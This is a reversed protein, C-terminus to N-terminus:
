VDWGSAAPQQAGPTGPAAGNLAQTSANADFTGAKLTKGIDIAAQALGLDGNKIAAAGLAVVDNTLTSPDAGSKIDALLKQYADSESPLLGLDQNAVGNNMLAVESALQNYSGDALSNVITNAAASLGTNGVKDALTKVQAADTKLTQTDAGKEVDDELKLYAAGLDDPQSFPGQPLNKAGPTGPVAATLASLYIDAGSGNGAANGINRAVYSLNADSNNQAAIALQAADNVITAKDAGSQIDAALKQYAAADPPTAAPASSSPTSSSPTSPNADMLATLSKTQDYSGDSLSIGINDATLVLDNRGAPGALTAVRDADSKITQPDAGNTLDVELQLYARELQPDAQPLSTDGALPDFVNTPGYGFNAGAYADRLRTLATNVGGNFSSGTPDSGVLLAMKELTENHSRAAAVALQQADQQIRSTGAGAQLDDVLKNYLTSEVDGTKQPPGDVVVTGVRPGGGGPPPYLPPPTLVSSAANRIDLLAESANDSGSAATAVLDAANAALDETGGYEEGALQAADAVSRVGEVVQAATGRARFLSDAVHSVAGAAGEGGAKLADVLADVTDALQAATAGRANSVMRTTTAVLDAFGGGDANSIQAIGEMAGQLDNASGHVRAVNQIMTVVANAGVVGGSLAADSVAHAANIAASMATYPNGGSAEAAAKGADSLAQVAARAATAAATRSQGQPTANSRAANTAASATFRAANAAAGASGAPANAIISAAEATAQAAAAGGARTAALVAQAAAAAAAPNGGPAHAVAGAADAAYGAAAAAETASGGANVIALAAQATAEAAAVGGARTALLVDGAASAAKAPNGGPANAVATAADAASQAAAAAGTAGGTAAAAFAAQAAFTAADDGGARAADAVAQAAAVGGSRAASSAALAADAAATAASAGVKVAVAAANAGAQTVATYAAAGAAGVGVGAGAEAATAAVAQAADLGATAVIRAAATAADVGGLAAAAEVLSAAAVAAADAAEAGLGAAARAAARAAGTVAAYAAGGPVGGGLVASAAAAAKTIATTAPFGIVVGIKYVDKAAQVGGAQGATAVAQAAATAATAAEAGGGGRDRVAQAADAAAQAVIGAVTDGDSGGIAAGAQDAISKVAAAAAPGAAKSLKAISDAVPPSNDSSTESGTRSGTGGSKSGTGCSGGSKSGTGETGGAKSGPGGGGSGLIQAKVLAFEKELGKDFEDTANPNRELSNIQHAYSDLFKNGTNEAVSM